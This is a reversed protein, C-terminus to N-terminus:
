GERLGLKCVAFTVGLIVNYIVYIYDGKTKHVIITDAATAPIENSIPKENRAAVGRKPDESSDFKPFLATRPIHSAYPHDAPFTKNIM